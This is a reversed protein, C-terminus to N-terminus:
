GQIHAAILPHLYPLDYNKNVMTLVTKFNPLTIPPEMLLEQLVSWWLASPWMPVILVAQVKEMKVKQLVKLILPVPPFLYCVNDWPNLMADRAVVNAASAPQHVLVM